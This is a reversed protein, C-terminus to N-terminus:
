TDSGKEQNLEDAYADSRRASIWGLGEPRPTSWMELVDKSRGKGQLGRLAVVDNMTILLWDKHSIFEILELDDSYNEKLYATLIREIGHCVTFNINLEPQTSGKVFGWIVQDARKDGDTPVWDPESQKINWANLMMHALEDMGATNFRSAPDGINRMVELIEAQKEAFIEMFQVVGRHSDLREQVRKCVALEAPQLSFLEKIIRYYTYFSERVLQPNKEVLERSNELIDASGVETSIFQEVADQTNREPTKSM